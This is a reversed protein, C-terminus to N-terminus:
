ACAASERSLRDASRAIIPGVEAWVAMNPTTPQLLDRIRAEAAGETKGGLILKAREEATKQIVQLRNPLTGTLEKATREAAEAGRLRAVYDETWNRLEKMQPHSFMDSEKLYWRAAQDGTTKSQLQRLIHEKAQQMVFAPDGTLKLLDDVGTFSDFFRAPIDSPDKSFKTPDFRDLATVERGPAARYKDLLRSAVSYDAQLKDFAPGAYESQLATLREYWDRARTQGIAAFGEEQKGFAVDGLKRRLTDIADFSSPFERFFEPEGTEPNIRKTVPKGAAVLEAVMDTVQEKTGILKIERGNLARSMEQYASLVSPVTEPAVNQLMAERSKPNLLIQDLERKMMLFLPSSDVFEGASERERVLDDVLKKQAQYDARRALEGESFNKLIRDRAATGSQTATQPTTLRDLLDEVVSREQTAQQTAAKAALQEQRQEPGVGARIRGAGAELEAYLAKRSETDAGQIRSLLQELYQEEAATLKRKLNEELQKGFTKATIGMASNGLLKVGKAALDAFAPSVIGGAMRAGEALFPNTSFMEVSQGAAESVLGGIAGSLAQGARAGVARTAPLKAVTQMGAGAAKAAPHPIMGVTWGAGELLEPTLAGLGAGFAGATGMHGFDYDLPGRTGVSAGQGRLKDWEALQQTTPTTTRAPGTKGLLSDISPAETPAAPKGVKLLDDISPEAM